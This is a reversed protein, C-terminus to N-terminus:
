GHGARAVFAAAGGPARRRRHSRVGPRYAPGPEPRARRRGTSVAPPSRRRPTTWGSGPASPSEPRRLPAGALCPLYRVSVATNDGQPLVGRKPAQPTLPVAQRLARAGRSRGRRRHGTRAAGAGERGRHLDRGRHSGGPLPAVVQRVRADARRRALVAAGAPAHRHAALLSGTRDGLGLRAPGDGHESSCPDESVGPRRRISRDLLEMEHALAYVTRRGWDSKGVPEYAM